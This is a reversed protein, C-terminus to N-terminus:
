LGRQAIGETTKAMLAQHSLKEDRVDPMHGAIVAAALRTVSHVLSSKTWKKLLWIATDTLEKNEAARSKLRRTKLAINL